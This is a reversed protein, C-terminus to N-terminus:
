LDKQAEQRSLETYKDMVRIVEEDDIEDEDNNLNMLDDINLEFNLGEEDDSDFPSKYYDEFHVRVQHM